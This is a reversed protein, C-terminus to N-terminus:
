IKTSKRRGAASTDLLGELSAGGQRGGANYDHEVVLAPAGQQPRHVADEVGGRGNEELLDDKHVVGTHITFFFFNLPAGEPVARCEQPTKPKM